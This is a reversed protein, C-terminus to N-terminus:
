EEGLAYVSDAPCSQGIPTRAGFRDAETGPPFPMEEVWDFVATRNLIRWRGGRSDADAGGGGAGAERALARRDDSTLARLDPM